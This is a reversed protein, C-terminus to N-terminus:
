ARLRAAAVPPAYTVAVDMKGAADGSTVRLKWGHPLTFPQDWIFATGATMAVAKRLYYSTSGDYKELTLTATSGFNETVTIGAILTSASATFVDTVTNGSIKTDQTLLPGDINYAM